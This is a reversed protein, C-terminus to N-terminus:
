FVIYKPIGNEYKCSIEGQILPTLYDIMEQTVGNGESTIWEEPVKKERDAIQSIDASGYVVKYTDGPVRTLTSMVGNEGEVALKVANRGLEMSETIDTESLLHGACRQLLNLEIYRVKCGINSRISNELVRGAGTAITHGFADRSQDRDTYDCIMKGSKDRIGESIAVILNNCISLQGRVDSLFENIDFPHEELYVLYPVNSNAGEALAAAATLWGANRGMMEVVIVYPTDYVELERELESVTTAIYKAASGFGPCHDIGFLDNDITKPAGVVVIDKIDHSKIYLSLKWVTDMSDNGGIYIFYGINHKQFIEIIKQFESSDKEPDQLKYRCSGLAAAPTVSLADLIDHIGNIASLETFNEQLVGQIGYRAGFIKDILPSDLAKEIIGTLTANIAATPGGSQAVLLNKM